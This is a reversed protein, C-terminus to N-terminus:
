TSFSRAHERTEILRDTTEVLRSAGSLFGRNLM